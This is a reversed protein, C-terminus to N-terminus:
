CYVARIATTVMWWPREWDKLVKLTRSNSIIHSCRGQLSSTIIPIQQGTSSIPNTAAISVEKLGDCEQCMHHTNFLFIDLFHFVALVCFCLAQFLSPTLTPPSAISLYCLNSVYSAPFPKPFSIHYVLLCQWHCLYWLRCLTIGSGLSRVSLAFILECTPWYETDHVSVGDFRSADTMSM